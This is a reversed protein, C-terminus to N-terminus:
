HFGLARGAVRALQGAAPNYAGVASIAVPALDRLAGSILGRMVQWNDNRNSATSRALQGAAQQVVEFGRADTHTPTVASSCPAGVYEVHTVIELNFTTGPKGVVMIVGIADNRVGTYTSTDHNGGDLNLSYLRNGPEFSVEHADVSATQLQFNMRRDVAEYSVYPQTTMNALTWDVTQGVGNHSPDFFGAIQGGMDLQTGTYTVRVGFSVIRSRVGAPGLDTPELVSGGYPLSSPYGLSWDGPIEPSDLALDTGAYQATTVVVNAVNNAVCPALYAGGVGGTGVVLTVARQICCIKQSDPSPFVPICAGAAAPAFPRAIALAYKTACPSLGMAPRAPAPRRAARRPQRNVRRKPRAARKRANKKVDDTNTAEGNNGNLFAVRGPVEEWDAGVLTPLGTFFVEPTTIAYGVLSSTGQWFHTMGLQPCCIRVSMNADVTTIQTLLTAVNTASSTGDLSGCWYHTTMQTGPTTDYEGFWGDNVSHVFVLHEPTTGTPVRYAIAGLDAAAISLRTLNHAALISRQAASIDDLGTWEGHAGSLQGNILMLWLGAATRCILQNSTSMGFYAVLLDFAKESEAILSLLTWDSWTVLHEAAFNVEDGTAHEQALLDEALCISEMTRAVRDVPDACPRGSPEWQLRLGGGEPLEGQAFNQVIKRLEHPLPRTPWSATEVPCLGSASHRDPSFLGTTSGNGVPTPRGCSRGSRTAAATDAVGAGAHSAGDAEFSASAELCTTKPALTTTLALHLQVGVGLLKLRPDDM